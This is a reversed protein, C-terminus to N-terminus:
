EQKTQIKGDGAVGADTTAKNIDVHENMTQQQQAASEACIASDFAKLFTLYHKAFLWQQQLNEDRLGCVFKDRLVVVYLRGCYNCCDYNDVYGM